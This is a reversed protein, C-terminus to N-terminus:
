LYSVIIGGCILNMYGFIAVYTIPINNLFHYPYEGGCIYYASSVACAYICFFITIYSLDFTGVSQKDFHCTIYLPLTHSCTDLFRIYKSCSQFPLIAVIFGLATVISTTRVLHLTSPDYTRYWFRTFYFMVCLALNNYTFYVMKACWQKCALPTPTSSLSGVLHQLILTFIIIQLTLQDNDPDVSQVLNVSSLHFTYLYIGTFFSLPKINEM